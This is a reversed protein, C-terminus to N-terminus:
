GLNGPKEVSELILLLPNASLKLQNLFHTKQEAVALVGGSNERIAIKDFVDKAVPVILKDSAGLSELEEQPIIEPCFFLNGIKYGADLAMRIEKKGEILFLGQKRRERPKELSLLSKIKPNQTSTITFHM